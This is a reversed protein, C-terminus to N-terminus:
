RLRRGRLPQVRQPTLRGGLTTATAVGKPEEMSGPGDAFLPVQEEGISLEQEKAQEIAADALECADEDSMVTWRDDEVYEVFRPENNIVVYMIGNAGHRLVREHYEGEFFVLIRENDGSM